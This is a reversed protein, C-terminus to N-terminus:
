LGTVDVQLKPTGHLRHSGSQKEHENEDGYERLLACITRGIGLRLLGVLFTQVAEVPMEHFHSESIELLCVLLISPV